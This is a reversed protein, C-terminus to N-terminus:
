GKNNKECEELREKITALERELTEIKKQQEKITLEKQSKLMPEENHIFYELNYGKADLPHLKTIILQSFTKLSLWRSVTPQGVNVFDSFEVQNMKLNQIVVGLRMGAHFKM